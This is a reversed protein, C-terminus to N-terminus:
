LVTIVAASGAPVNVTFSNQNIARKEAAGPVFTGDFHVSSGAFTAKDSALSPASLREIKITAAPKSLQVNFNINETEEKNILTVSYTNDANICAHASCNYNIDGLTAPIITGGNSGYKFALMAYYEPKANVEGDAMMVPSYFLGTGTHFNIGHGNNEAITWMLDLAWLASAFVNSAGAKGGGYINNCETIRYPLSYKSSESNLAQLYYPLESNQLLTHYTISLNSA